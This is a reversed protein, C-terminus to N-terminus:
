CTLKDMGFEETKFENHERNDVSYLKIYETAKQSLFDLLITIIPAANAMRSLNAGHSEPKAIAQERPPLVKTHGSIGAQGAGAATAAHGVSM